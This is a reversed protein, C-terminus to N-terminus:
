PAGYCHTSSVYGGYLGYSGYVTCDSAAFGSTGPTGYGYHSTGTICGGQVTSFLAFLPLALALYRARSLFTELTM